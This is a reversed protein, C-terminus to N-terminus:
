RRVATVLEDLEDALRVLAADDVPEGGYLLAGVRVPSRGTQGSVATAVAEPPPAVGLGLRPVIRALAGARLAEAARDRAQGRRYLRARGHVTEAARVVVPLPEAVPPGLRRGRWLAVLLGGLLLQAAAAPVWPPLVDVLGAPGGGGSGPGPVLWRLEAGAGAGDAGLLGLSLAANGRGALKDNRLPDGGGLVVLEVGGRTRGLAVTQDYCLETGGRGAYTRGGLDADGAVTAPRASCGPQRAAVDVRGVPLIDDTVERLASADPGVLVLRGAAPAALRRLAGPPLRDPFAVLVTSGAGVGSAAEAVTSVRRVATGRQELLARLARSGAPDVADPDLEGRVVHARALGVLVAGLLLVGLLLLPLWGSRRGQGVSPGTGTGSM